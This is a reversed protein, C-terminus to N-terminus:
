AHGAPQSTGWMNLSIANPGLLARNRKVVEAITEPENEQEQGWLSELFIDM